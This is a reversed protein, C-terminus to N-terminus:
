LAPRRRRSPQDADHGAPSPARSAPGCQDTPGAIRWVGGDLVNTAYPHGCADAGFSSLGLGVGVGEDRPAPSPDDLDTTLLAGLWVRRPAEASTATSTAATTTAPLRRTTCFWGASSPPAIATMPHSAPILSPLVRRSPHPSSACVAAPFWPLVGETCPWGYFPPEAGPPLTSPVRDIEEQQANGVDGIILDGTAPDFSFRWPNRLGSAWIEPRVGGGDGVLPNDSPVTYRNGDADPAAAPQPDIRLIKGHLSTLDPALLPSSKDCDPPMLTPSGDGGDGISLWLHHDPGFALQGGYHPSSMDVCGTTEVMLIRRQSSPDAVDPNSAATKFADLHYNDLNPLTPNATDSYDVYFRRNQAYDPDFVLSFMGDENYTSVQTHIDLFPTPLTVGDKVVFVYGDKTGVFLRHTDGPIATVFTPGFGGPSM